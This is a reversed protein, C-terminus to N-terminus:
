KRSNQLPPWRPEVSALIECTNIQTKGTKRPIVESTILIKRFFPVIRDETSRTKILEPPRTCDGIVM